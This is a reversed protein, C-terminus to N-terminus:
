TFLTYSLWGSVLLYVGSRVQLEVEKRIVWISVLQVSNLLAASFQVPACNATEKETQIGGAKKREWSGTTAHNNGQDENSPSCWVGDPKGCSHSTSYLIYRTWKLMGRMERQEAQKQFDICAPAGLKFTGLHGTFSHCSHSCRPNGKKM